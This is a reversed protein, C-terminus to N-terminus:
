YSISFLYGRFLMYGQQFLSTAKRGGQNLYSQMSLACFIKAETLLYPFADALLGQLRRSSNQFFHTSLIQASDKFIYKFSFM